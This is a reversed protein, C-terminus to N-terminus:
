NPRKAPNPPSVTEDVIETGKPPQFRFDAEELRPNLSAGAFVVTTTSGLQDYFKMEVPEGSSKLRLDIRQFDGDKTKPLLKLTHLDKQSGAEEVVFEENLSRKQTLIAAPTGELVQSAARHTAQQLDPDYLWLDKGDSVSLQAFPSRVDWRFKGPRALKIVGSSSSVTKGRDDVQVQSFNASFRNVGELYRKLAAEGAGAHANLSLALLLAATLSIKKM